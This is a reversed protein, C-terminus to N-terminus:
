LDEKHAFYKKAIDRLTIVVLAAILLALVVILVTTWAPPEPATWIEPGTM